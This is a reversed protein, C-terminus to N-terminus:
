SILNKIFLFIDKLIEFLNFLLLELNPFILGLPSKFTDLIIILAVLSIAFVILFSFIKIIKFDSKKVKDASTKKIIEKKENSQEENLQDTQNLDFNGSVKVEPGPVTQLFTEKTSNQTEVTKKYFWTHNCSGCQINRGSDPILHSSVEFKKNCNVCQIIM